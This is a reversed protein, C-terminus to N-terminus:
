RKRRQQGGRSGKVPRFGDDGSGGSGKGPVAYQLFSNDVVAKAGPVTQWEGGDDKEAAFEEDLGAPDLRLHLLEHYTGSLDRGAEGMPFADAEAAPSEDEEVQPVASSAPRQQQQESPDLTPALLKEVVWERRLFSRRRWEPNGSSVVELPKWCHVPDTSTHAFDFPSTPSLSVHSHTLGGKKQQLMPPAKCDSAPLLDVVVVTIDDRLGRAKLASNDLHRAAQGATMRRISHMATKPAICDWLGDSAIVLRGGSSPLTVQRVEPMATVVDGGCADGITRSMALGGPWVRLPGVGKGDEICSQAVEAGADLVRQQEEPNDDLRHNGSVQIVEMGTDLLALSDGVNAVILEWGVVVALTATSGSSGNKAKFDADMAEFSRALAQPLRQVMVDQAEWVARDKDSTNAALLDSLPVAAPAESGNNLESVLTKTANKSIYTASTKGGHGDFVGFAAFPVSTGSGPESWILSPQQLWTDEGKHVTKGLENRIFFGKLYEQTAAM